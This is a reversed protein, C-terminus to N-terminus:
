AQVVAGQVRFFIRTLQSSGWSRGNRPNFTSCSKLCFCSQFWGATSLFVREIGLNTFITGKFKKTRVHNGCPAMNVKELTCEVRSGSRPAMWSTIREPPTWCLPPACARWMVARSRKLSPCCRPATCPVHRRKRPYHHFISSVSRHVHISM